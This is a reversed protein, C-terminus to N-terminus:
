IIVQGLYNSCNDNLLSNLSSKGIIIGKTIGTSLDSKTYLYNDSERIKFLYEERFTESKIEIGEEIKLKKRISFEFEGLNILNGEEYSEIYREAICSYTDILLEFKKNKHNFVINDSLEIYRNVCSTMSFWNRSLTILFNTEDLDKKGLLEKIYITNLVDVESADIGELLTHGELYVRQKVNDNEVVFGYEDESYSWLEVEM